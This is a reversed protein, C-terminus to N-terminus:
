GPRSRHDPGAALGGEPLRMVFVPGWLEAETTKEYIELILKGPGWSPEVAM